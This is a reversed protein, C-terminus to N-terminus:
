MSSLLYFSVILNTVILLSITTVIISGKKNYSSSLGDFEKKYIKWKKTNTFFIFKLFLIIGLPIFVIPNNMSLNLYKKTIITYYNFGSLVLWIELAIMVIGAKTELLFAGGLLNSTYEISKFIKYYFYFYYFKLRDM